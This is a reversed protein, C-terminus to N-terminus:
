HKKKDAQTNGDPIRADLLEIIAKPVGNLLLWQRLTQIARIQGNGEDRWTLLEVVKVILALLKSNDLETKEARLKQYLAEKEWDLLIEESITPKTITHGYDCSPCRVSAFQENEFTVTINERCEQCLYSVQVPKNDIM